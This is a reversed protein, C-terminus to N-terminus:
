RGRRDGKGRRKTKQFVDWITYQKPADKKFLEQLHKIRKPIENDLLDAIDPDNRGRPARDDILTGYLGADYMIACCCVMYGLHHTGTRKDREEGAMFKLKHRDFASLYVSAKVPAMRWNFRGYKLAGELFAMAVEIIFTEPLVSLDLKTQAVLDKPNVARFYPDKPAVHRRM